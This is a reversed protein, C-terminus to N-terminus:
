RPPVITFDLTGDPLLFKAHSCFRAGRMGDGGECFVGLLEPSTNARVKFVPSGSMGGLHTPFELKDPNIVIELQENEDVITFRRPGVDTVLDLIPLVRTNIKDEHAIRHAAPFGLMLAQDGKQAFSPPWKELDFFEKNLDGAEFDSPVQLTCIDIFDDHAVIPWNSIETFASKRGILVVIERSERLTRIENIVHDATILFRNQRTHALLGTGGTIWNKLGPNVRPYVLIPVVFPLLYEVHKKLADALDSRM